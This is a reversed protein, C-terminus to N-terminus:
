KFAAGGRASAAAPSSTIALARTAGAADSPKRGLTVAAPESLYNDQEGLDAFHNMFENAITSNIREGTATVLFHNQTGFEDTADDASFITTEQQIPIPGNDDSPFYKLTVPVADTGKKDNFRQWEENLLDDTLKDPLFGFGPRMEETPTTRLKRREIAQVERLIKQEVAETFPIGRGRRTLGTKKQSVVIFRGDDAQFVHGNEPTSPEKKQPKSVKFEGPYMREIALNIVKVGAPNSLKNKGKNKELFMRGGVVEHAQRVSLGQRLQRVMRARRNTREKGSLNANDLYIKLQRKQRDSLDM